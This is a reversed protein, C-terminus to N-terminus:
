VIHILARLTRAEANAPERDIVLGLDTLAGAFDHRFQALSARLILVDTPPTPINWWPDLAAQAYGLYRPDGEQGVLGYYRRALRVAVDLNRPNRQLESRLQGLERAVPDNPKFPLRELVQGDNTPIYPAATAPAVTLAAVLCLLVPVSHAFMPVKSSVAYQVPVVHYCNDIRLAKIVRSKPPDVFFIQLLNDVMMM